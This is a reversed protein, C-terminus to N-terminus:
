WNIGPTDGGCLTGSATLVYGRTTGIVVHEYGRRLRTVVTWLGSNYM